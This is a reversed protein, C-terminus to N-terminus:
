ILDDALLVIKKKPLKRKLVTVKCIKNRKQSGISALGDFWYLCHCYADKDKQNVSFVYCKVGNFIINVTPIKYYTYWILSM